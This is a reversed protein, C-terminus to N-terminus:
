ALKRLFPARFWTLMSVALIIIGSVVAAAPEGARSALSALFLSGIPNGGFMILVFLGMVRGRLKDPTETQLFANSTNTWMMLGAGIGVVSVMALPITRMALLIIDFSSPHNDRGM